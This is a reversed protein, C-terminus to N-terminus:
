AKEKCLRQILLELAAAVSETRVFARSAVPDLEKPPVSLRSIVTCGDADACGIYVLGVPKGETAGGPGALGTIGIGFDAGIFSRIGCAMQRAVPESVAGFRDLVRPEVGCVKTKIRNAYTIVSGDLVASSGPIDTIYKTFLGGTCSEAAAVTCGAKQLAPILEAALLKARQELEALTLVAQM